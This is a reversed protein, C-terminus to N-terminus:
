QWPRHSTMAKMFFVASCGIIGGTIVGGIIGEILLFASVGVAIGFFGFLIAMPKSLSRAQKDM